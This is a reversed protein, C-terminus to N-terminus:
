EKAENKREKIAKRFARRIAAYGLFDNVTAPYEGFLARCALSLDRSAQDEYEPSKQAGCIAIAGLGCYSVAVFLNCPAGDADQALARQAWRRKDDLLHYADELIQLVPDTM